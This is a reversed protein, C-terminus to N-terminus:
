KAAKSMKKKATAKKTSRKAKPSKTLKKKATRKAM